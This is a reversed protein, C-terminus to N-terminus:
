NKPLSSDGARLQPQCLTLPAVSQNEIRRWLLDLCQAAANQAPIDVTTLSFPALEAALTRNTAVVAIDDPVRLGAEQAAFIAGIATAENQALVATPHPSLQLARGLLARGIEIGTRPLSENLYNGYSDAGPLEEGPLRLINADPLELGRAALARRSGRIRDLHPGFFEHVPFLWAFDRHGLELLHEAAMEGQREVAFALTPFPSGQIPYSYCITPINQAAVQRLAHKAPVADWNAFHSKLIIGDVRAELLARLARDELNADFEHLAIQVESGRAIAGRFVHQVLENYTLVVDPVVLGIAGTKQARMRRAHANPVYGLEAAKARVRLRTEEAITGKGSLAYAVTSHDLDLERALQKVTISMLALKM